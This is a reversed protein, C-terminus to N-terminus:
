SSELEVIRADRAALKERLAHIEADKQAKVAALEMRLDRIVRRRIRPTRITGCRGHEDNSCNARDQVPVCVLGLGQEGCGEQLRQLTSGALRRGVYSETKQVAGELTDSYMTKKSSVPNAAAAKPGCVVIRVCGERKGGTKKVLSLSVRHGGHDFEMDGKLRPNVSVVPAAVCPLSPKIAPASLRIAVKSVDVFRESPELVLGSKGGRRIIRLRCMESVVLGFDEKSVSNALDKDLKRSERRIKSAGVCYGERVKHSTIANVILRALCTVDEEGTADDERTCNDCLGCKVRIAPDPSIDGNKFYAQLMEQRCRSTNEVYTRVTAISAACGGISRVKSFDAQSWYLSARCPLGDRGSRGIEQYYSELSPPIGYNIVHRINSKDIGMGFAVTAVVVDIDGAIFAEHVRTRKEADLGAHYVGAKVKGLERLKGAITETGKKSNIYIITGAEVEHPQFSSRAHVGIAMNPRNTSGIFSRYDSLGLVDAIENRSGPTATATVALIPVEPFTKRLNSLDLYSPRFDKSWQTICHAEDVAFLSIGPLLRRILETRAPVSEPTIFIVHADDLEQESYNKTSNITCSKVGLLTLKESQDKMLAILPSVVLATSETYTAIFLYLLSKGAGTPLVALVDEGELLCAIIEKQYPRFNSHKYQHALHQRLEDM